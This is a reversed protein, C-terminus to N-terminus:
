DDNMWGESENVEEADPAEDIDDERVCSVCIWRHNDLTWIHKPSSANCEDEYEHINTMAPFVGSHSATRDAFCDYGDSFCDLEDM